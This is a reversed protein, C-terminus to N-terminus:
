SVYRSGRAPSVVNTHWERAFRKGRENARLFLIGTNFTGGSSYSARGEADRGPSM